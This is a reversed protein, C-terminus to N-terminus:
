TNKFLPAIEIKSYRGKRNIRIKNRGERIALLYVELGSTLNNKHDLVITNESSVHELEDLSFYKGLPIIIDELFVEETLEFIDTSFEFM